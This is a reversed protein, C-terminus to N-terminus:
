LGFSSSRTATLVIIKKPNEKLIQKSIEKITAGSTVIDDILLIKKDRINESAFFANEITKQRESFNLKYLPVTDKIRKLLNPETQINYKQALEEGVLEMHNYKRNKLRTKHIPVPCIVFDKIDLNYNEITKNIIDSLVKSFEKKKHYKLARIIKLLEGEYIAGSYISINAKTTKNFSLNSYIKDLCEECISIDCCKKACIYCKRYYIYDLLKSFFSLINM